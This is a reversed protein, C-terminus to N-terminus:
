TLGQKEKLEKELYELKEELLIAESKFKMNNEYIKYAKKKRWEEDLIEDKLIFPFSNKLDGIIKEFKKKYVEIDITKWNEYDFDKGLFYIKELTELNLKKYSKSIEKWLEIKDKRVIPHYMLILKKYVERIRDEEMLGKLTKNGNSMIKNLSKEYEKVREKLESSKNSSKSRNYDKLINKYLSDSTREIEEKLELVCSMIEYHNCIERGISEAYVKWLYPIEIFQLYDYEELADVLEILSEKIKEDEANINYYLNNIYIGGRM